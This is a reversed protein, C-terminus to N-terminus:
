WGIKPRVYVEYKEIAAMIRDDSINFKNGIAICVVEWQLKSCYKKNSKSRNPLGLAHLAKAAIRVDIMGGEPTYYKNQGTRLLEIHRKYERIKQSNRRLEQITNKNGSRESLLKLIYPKRLEHRCDENWQSIYNKIKESHKPHEKLFKVWMKSVTAQIYKIISDSNYEYINNDGM